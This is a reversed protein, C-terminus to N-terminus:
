LQDWPSAGAPPPSLHAQLPGQGAPRAAGATAQM